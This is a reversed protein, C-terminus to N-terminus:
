TDEYEVVKALNGWPEAQRKAEKKDDFLVPKLIDGNIDTVYIYNDKAMPVMIAFKIGKTM